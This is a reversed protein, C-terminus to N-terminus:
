RDCLREARRRERALVRRIRDEMEAPSPGAPARGEASAREERAEPVIEGSVEEFVIPM